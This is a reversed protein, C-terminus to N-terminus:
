QKGEGVWKANPGIKCCDNCIFAYHEMHGILNLVRNKKEGCFECINRDIDKEKIDYIKREMEIGGVFKIEMAPLNNHEHLFIMLVKSYYAWPMTRSRGQLGIVVDEGKGIMGAMRITLRRVESSFDIIIDKADRKNADRKYSCKYCIPTMPSCEGENCKYCAVTYLWGGPNIYKEFDKKNIKRM